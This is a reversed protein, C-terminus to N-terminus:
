GGRGECKEVVCVGLKRMVQELAQTVMSRAINQINARVFQRQIFRVGENMLLAHIDMWLIVAAEFPDEWGQKGGWAM